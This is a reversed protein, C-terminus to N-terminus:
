ACLIAAGAGGSCNVGGLMTRIDPDLERVRKLIALSGNNQRFLSSAALLRPRLSVIRQAAEETCTEAAAMAERLLRTFRGPDIMPDRGAAAAAFEERDQESLADLMGALLEGREELKEEKETTILLKALMAALWAGREDEPARTRTSRIPPM